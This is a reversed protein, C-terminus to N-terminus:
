ALFAWFALGLSWCQNARMAIATTMVRLRQTIKWRQKTHVILEEERYLRYIRKANVQLGERRL